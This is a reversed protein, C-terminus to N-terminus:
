FQSTMSRAGLVPRNGSTKKNLSPVENEKEGIKQFGALLDLGGFEDPEEDVLLDFNLFDNGGFDNTEAISMLKSPSKVPSRARLPSGLKPPKLAPNMKKVSNSSGTIDALASATSQARDFRPRKVSRKEPSAEAKRKIPSDNYITFNTDRYFDDEAIQFAPSFHMEEESVKLPSGILEYVRKRHNRLNTNPSVSPLPRRPKKFLFSPTIPGGLPPLGLTADDLRLPSSSLPNVVPQKLLTRSKTPSIDHSSSRIRAIEEEARGRKFRPAASDRENGMATLPRAASSDLSSFYGSDNMTTYKRKRTRSPRSSLVELGLYPTGERSEIADPVPPSSRMAHSPSSLRAPNAPPPMVEEELLAPDSAPITADSSPEEAVTQLASRALEQPLQLSISQPGVQGLDQSFSQPGPLSAELRAEGFSASSSPGFDSSHQMQFRVPGASRRSPKEKIFSAEMGPEILWYNGKGPDDKPREQKIFAKNLSLNHRISNQWGTEATRYYSFSDTIWKYIQALTLRRNPARLISMAILSAYSYPPKSGDDEVAPMDQPEPIHTSAAEEGQQKRGTRQELASLIEAAPAVATSLERDVAPFEAINESRYPSSTYEKQVLSFGPLATFLARSQQPAIPHYTAPLSKKAPSDTTFPQSVPPPLAINTKDAFVARTPPSSSPHPQKLPSQGGDTPIVSPQLGAQSAFASLAPPLSPISDLPSSLPLEVNPLQSASFTSADFTSTSDQFIELPPSPRTSAM